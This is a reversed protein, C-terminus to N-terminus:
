YDLNVPTKWSNQSCYELYLETNPEARMPLELQTGFYDIFRDFAPNWTFSNSNWLLQNDDGEVDASYYNYNEDYVKIFDLWNNVGGFITTLPNFDYEDSSVNDSTKFAKFESYQWVRQSIEEYQLSTDQSERQLLVQEITLEYNPYPV